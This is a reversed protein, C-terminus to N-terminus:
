APSGQLSVQCTALALDRQDNTAIVCIGRERQLSVIRSVLDRGEDDLTQTPEDLLLLLPRTILALALRTRQLMGSSFSGTLDACRSELGVFAATELCLDAPIGRSKAAFRLNELLTLHHYPEIYPAALATASRREQHDLRRGGTELWTQGSTPRLLGALMKLLTSKGCGNPGVVALTQGFTLQLSMDCVAQRAGFSRHLHQAILLTSNGNAM